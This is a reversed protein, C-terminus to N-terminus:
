CSSDWVEEGDVTEDDEGYYSRVRDQRVYIMPELTDVLEETSLNLIELITVEDELKLRELLDNFTNNM